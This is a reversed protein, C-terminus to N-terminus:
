NMLSSQTLEGRKEGRWFPLILTANPFVSFHERRLVKVYKTCMAVVRSRQSITNRDWSEFQCSVLSLSNSIVTLTLCLETIADTTPTGKIKEINLKLILNGWFWTGRCNFERHCFIWRFWRFFTIVDLRVEALWVVNVYIGGLSGDVHAKIVVIFWWSFLRAFFILFYTSIKIQYAMPM